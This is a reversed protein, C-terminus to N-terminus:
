LQDLEAMYYCKLSSDLADDHLLGYSIACCCSADPMLGDGQLWREQPVKLLGVAAWKLVKFHGM